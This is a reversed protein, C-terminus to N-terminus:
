PQVEERGSQPDRPLTGVTPEVTLQAFDEKTRYRHLQHGARFLFGAALLFSVTVAIDLVKPHTNGFIFAEIAAGGSSFGIMAMCAGIVTPSGGRYKTRATVITLIGVVLSSLWLVSGYLHGVPKGSVIERTEIYVGFLGAGILAVGFMYLLVRSVRRM